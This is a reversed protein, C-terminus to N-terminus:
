SLRGSLRVPDNPSRATVFEARFYFATPDNAVTSVQVTAVRVLREAAPRKGRQFQDQLRQISAVSNRVRREIAREVTGASAANGNVVDELGAGVNDTRAETALAVRLDQRIKDADAILKPQGSSRSIDVDGNRILFTTSM